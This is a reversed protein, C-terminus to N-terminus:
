KEYVPLCYASTAIKRALLDNATQECNATPPLLTQTAALTPTDFLAANSIVTVLLYGALIM